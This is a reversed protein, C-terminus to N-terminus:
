GHSKVLAMLNKREQGVYGDGERKTGAFALWADNEIAWSLYAWGQDMPLEDSV